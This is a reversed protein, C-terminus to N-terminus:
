LTHEITDYIRLYSYISIYIVGGATDAVLDWIESTRGPTFMQHFEDSIGFLIVFLLALLLSRKRLGPLPQFYLAVHALWCLVFFVGAHVIKDSYNLLNPIKTQPISSVTYIFICWAVLPLQFQLFKIITTQKM